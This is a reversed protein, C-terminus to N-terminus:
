GEDDDGVIEAEEIEQLTKPDSSIEVDPLQLAKLLEAKSLKNDPQELHHIADIRKLIEKALYLQAPPIKEIPLNKDANPDAYPGIGLTMQYLKIYRNTQVNVLAEKDFREVEGFILEADSITRYAQSESIGYDMMLLDAVQKKTLDIMKSWAFKMRDRLEADKDSLKYDKSPATYYELIREIPLRSRRQTRSLKTEARSLAKSKSLKM